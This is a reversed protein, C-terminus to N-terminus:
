SDGGRTDTIATQILFIDAQATEPMNILDYAPTFSAISLPQLNQQIHSLSTLRM